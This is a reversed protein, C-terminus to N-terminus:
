KEILMKRIGHQVSYPPQWGLVRMTKQIDVQLSDCLRDIEPEKGIIKGMFYLMFVPVPLLRVSCQLENAMIRILGPTSLDDDDSVLFLEGAAQQHETCLAILDCLNDLNVMSRKNKILGFPLPVGTQILQCLRQLNGKVGPGYVLPPRIIVVGMGTDHSIGQLLQEAEWKSVAYPDQPAATDDATFPNNNHEGNVKISSLFILRQVGKAAAQLALNRTGAVNVEQFAALPDQAKDVMVHVRAALHVVVETETLAEQWDTQANVDGVVISSIEDAVDASASRVAATVAHGASLLKRCLAKGVFGNAGTVLVQSM